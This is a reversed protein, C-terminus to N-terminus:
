NTATRLWERAPKMKFNYDHDDTRSSSCKRVTILGAEEEGREGKRTEYQFSGFDIIRVGAARRDPRWWWILDRSARARVADRKWYGWSSATKTIVGGPCAFEHM